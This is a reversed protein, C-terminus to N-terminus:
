GSYVTSGCGYWGKKREFLQRIWRRRNIQIWSSTNTRNAALLTWIPFPFCEKAHINKLHVCFLISILHIKNIREGTTYTHSFRKRNNKRTPQNPVNQQEVHHPMLCAVPHFHTKYGIDPHDRSQWGYFLHKRSREVQAQPPLGWNQM